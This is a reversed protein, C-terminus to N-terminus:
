GLREAEGDLYAQIRNLTNTLHRHMAAAAREADRDCVAECIAIHEPLTALFPENLHLIITRQCWRVMDTMSEMMSQMRTNACYKQALSHILLDSKPLLRNREKATKAQAALAYTRLANDAEAKPILPTALRIAATELAIRIDFIDKVEKATLESVFVGRRPIVKLFGQSELQKAADRVPTISVQWRAACQGLDVRQGPALHGSLILESLAEEVSSALSKQAIPSVSGLSAIPNFPKNM